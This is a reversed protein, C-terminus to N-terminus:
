RLRLWANAWREGLALVGPALLHVGDTDRPLDDTDIWAVRTVSEAVRVQAARVTHQHAYGKPPPPGVRGLVFPLAGAARAEGFDARVRAIFARLNQEYATAPVANAGDTEGQMWFFGAVRPTDGATRLLDLATDVQARLLGYLRNGSAADPRWDDALNSGFYAVKIIALPKVGHADVSRGLLIEPGFFERAYRVYPEQRQPRLSVWAGASTANFPMEGGKSPPAGTHYFFTIGADAKSPPLAAADAHWNLVNSQGAVILVTREAGVGNGLAVACGIFGTLTAASLTRM